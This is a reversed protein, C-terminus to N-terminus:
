NSSKCCGFTWFSKGIGSCNATQRIRTKERSLLTFLLGVCLYIEIVNNAVSSGVKVPLGDPFGTLTVMRSM